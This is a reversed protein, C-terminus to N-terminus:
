IGEDRLEHLLDKVKKSLKEPLTIKVKILLDGPGHETPVGKGRVRLLQGDSVREPIKVELTKGDITQVAYTSGLLADTLKVRLDMTLNAGSKKFATHPRVHVKVYLDGTQGGPTAEGAGGLRIMEGNDIGAPIVVKIEEQIKAVGQGGCKACPTEPVKGSGHCSGCTSVTAFTGIISQRSERM